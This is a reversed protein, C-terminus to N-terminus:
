GKVRDRLNFNLFEEIVLDKDIYPMLGEKNRGLSLTYRSDQLPETNEPNKIIEKYNTYVPFPAEEGDKLYLSTDADAVHEDLQPHQNHYHRLPKEKIFYACM